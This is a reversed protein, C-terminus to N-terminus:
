EGEEIIVVYFFEFFGKDSYVILGKICFDGNFFVEQDKVCYFEGYYFKEEVLDGVGGNKVVEIVVEVNDGVVIIMEEQNFDIVELVIQVLVEEFILNFLVLLVVEVFMNVNKKFDLKIVM